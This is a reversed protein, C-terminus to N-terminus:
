IQRALPRERPLAFAVRRLRSLDSDAAGGLAPRVLGGDRFQALEALASARAELTRSTLNGGHTSAADGTGARGTIRPRTWSRPRM